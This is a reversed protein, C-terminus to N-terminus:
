ENAVSQPEIPRLSQFWAEADAVAILTRRGVKLARLRGSRIQAYATTRGVSYRACFDLLTLAGEEM